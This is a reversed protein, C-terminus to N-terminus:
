NEGLMGKTQCPNNHCTIARRGIVEALRQAATDHDQRAKEDRRAAASGRRDIERSYQQVLDAYVPCNNCTM